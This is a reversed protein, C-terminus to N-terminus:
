DSRLMRLAITWRHLEDLMAQAASMQSDTASFRADAGLQQTVQQIVVGELMPMMKLSTLLPKVAQVARLGGSIGGYSVFAAPKYQWENLLYTIANIAASPPNHNYEPMVFVFADASRVSASWKRTHEHEYKQLRPHEPEDYVPLRFEAIDVLQSHFKGHQSATEAVWAAVVPGVRRPRTSCIVIHLVPNSM